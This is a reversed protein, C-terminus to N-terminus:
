SKMWHRKIYRKKKNYQWLEVMFGDKLAHVSGVGHEVNIALNFGASLLKIAEERFLQEHMGATNPIMEFDHIYWNKIGELEFEDKQPIKKISENWKNM